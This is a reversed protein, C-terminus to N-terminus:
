YRTRISLDTITGAKHTFSAKSYAPPGFAGMANNSFGYGEKPLGLFTKNMKRDNNEDHLLAIAYQGEPIDTFILVAKGNTISAKGNRFAKETKDPYGVGEKYLSVLVFGKDNRLNTVTLRINNDPARKFSFLLLLGTIIIVAKFSKQM